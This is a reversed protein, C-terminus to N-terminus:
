EPQGARRLGEALRERDDAEKFPRYAVVTRVNVGVTGWTGDLRNRMAQIAEDRRGLYGYAALLLECPDCDAEAYTTTEPPWLDPGLELARELLQAAADFQDLGFRAFGELYAYRAANHPDLRRAAEIATMAEEPRGCYILVEALVARSDADNRNLDVAQQAKVIADDYHAVKLQMQAAVQYALPTPEAM